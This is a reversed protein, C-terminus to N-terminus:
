GMWGAGGAHEHHRAPAPKAPGAAIQPFLHTFGWVAADLRDPSGTGQYGGATMLCMQNELETFTGCHSIRNLSYLSSIPEARVHKGRSARVELVPLSTRVSQLTHKVMDGGQNVEVIVANAEYRDYAAIARDAWQRPTGHASLDDIVYGRGDVGLGCVVIGHENATDESSTAPDVAVVVRKLEPPANRRNAHFNARDWIAGIAAPEYEGEWIHAYRDPNSKLDHLRETELVSPFFPNDSWNAKVVIAGPPPSLGRLLKDLPDAANRPNWSAWIESGEARLTPRLMELSRASMTQGEEIWAIDFGELSKISEATHDQMGQFLVLGGGPTRIETDLARFSDEVGMRKIKDEILRKASQKLTKQVERICVARLGRRRLATAVLLEGFFHSKGSGRGGWAGKYRAPALLPKFVRAIGLPISSAGSSSM